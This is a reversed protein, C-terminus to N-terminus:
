QGKVGKLEATLAFLKLLPGLQEARQDLATVYKPIYTDLDDDLILVEPQGVESPRSLLGIEKSWRPLYMM